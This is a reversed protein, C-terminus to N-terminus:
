EGNGLFPLPSAGSLFFFWIGFVVLAVFASVVMVGELPAQGLDQHGQSARVEMHKRNLWGLLPVLVVLLVVVSVLMAAMAAGISDTATQVRSGVVLAAVPIGVWLVLSGIFMILLMLAASEGTRVLNRGSPM